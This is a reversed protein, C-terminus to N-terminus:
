KCHERILRDVIPDGLEKAKAFAECAEAKKNLRVLCVGKLRYCSNFDPALELAKELTTLAETYNEQRMYISAMKAIYNPNDPVMQHATQIDEMAGAYDASRFKSQERLYYFNDGVNGGTLEYYLDYDKIAEEHQALSIKMDIRELIYALTEESPALMSKEIAKDLLAILDSINTGPIQELSKAAMYYSLSSALDSENVKTYSDYAMDYIGLTFFMDGELQRYAPQDDLEIAEKLINMAGATTWEKQTLTTDATAVDFIVRAKNFLVNAKNDTQRSATEWDTMAKDLYAQATEGKELSFLTRNHAYHSARSLYGDPSSPFAAIFDNIIELYESATKGTGMIMLMVQAQEIEEPWAKRIGISSYTRSLADLSTVRLSRAYGASVGYSIDADGATDDQMLGFVEGNETLLPLNVSEFPISTKYYAYPDKLKSVETINGEKFTGKKETTYPVTYIKIGNALPEAAIPFYPVKKTIEVQFRIVEYMDDAGLIATVPYSKGDTDTVVARAAGRFLGYGSLAEGTESVFFATGTQLHQNDKGYTSLTLLAKRQKELWKPAKGQATALLTVCAALMLLSIKRIM